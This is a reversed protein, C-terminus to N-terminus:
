ICSFTIKKGWWWVCHYSNKKIGVKEWAWIEVCFYYELQMGWLDFVIKWSWIMMLIKQVNIWVYEIMWRCHDVNSLHEIALHHKTPYMNVRLITFSSQIIIKHRASARFWRNENEYAEMSNEKNQWWRHKIYIIDIRGIHAQSVKMIM